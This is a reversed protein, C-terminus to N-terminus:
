PQGGRDHGNRAPKAPKPKVPPLPWRRDADAEREAAALLADLKRNMSDLTDAIADAAGTLAAHLPSSNSM